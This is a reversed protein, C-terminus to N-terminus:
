AHDVLSFPCRINRYFRGCPHDLDVTVTTRNVKTITGRAGNLYKPRGGIMKVRGGVRFTQAKEHKLIDRRNNISRVLKNLESDIAGSHILGITIDIAEQQEQTIAM